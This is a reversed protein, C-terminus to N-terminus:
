DPENRPACSRRLVVETPVQLHKPEYTAASSALRELLLTAAERGLLALDWRIVTFSPPALEALDTDGTSIVSLDRPVRRGRMSTARLVGALMFSGAVIMASPPERMGLLDLTERYAYDASFSELRLLVPDVRRGAIEFARLFGRHRERGARNRRSGTVLAIRDHGLSFLYNVASQIGNSQDSAVSDLYTPLDREMLVTPVGIERMTAQTQPDMDDTPALLLGDTRRQMFLNILKRDQPPKEDSSAVMLTYGRESLVEEAGKVIGAFLPNRIDPVICGITRTTATRMSRAVANPRWGLREIANLVRDRADRAVSPNENVVRSVTGLSVEALRAVDRMTVRHAPRVLGKAKREM